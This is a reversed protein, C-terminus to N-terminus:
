KALLKQVALAIVAGVIASILSTVASLTIQDHHRNFWSGEEESQRQLVVVSRICRTYLPFILLGIAAGFGYIGVGHLLGERGVSKHLFYVFIPFTSLFLAVMTSISFWPAKGLWTTRRRFVDGIQSSAWTQRQLSGDLWMEARGDPNFEIRDSM